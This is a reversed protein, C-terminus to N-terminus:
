SKHYGHDGWTVSANHIGPNAGRPKKHNPKKLNLFYFLVWDYSTWYFETKNPKKPTKKANLGFVWHM